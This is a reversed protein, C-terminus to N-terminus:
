RGSWGLRSALDDIARFVRVRDLDRMCRHQLETCEYLTCPACDVAHQVIICKEPPLFPGYRGANEPGFVAVVPTGVAAALHMPGTDNTVLLQCSALLASLGGLSLGLVPRADIQDAVRHVLTGDEPGGTVLIRAGYRDRLYRGVAM